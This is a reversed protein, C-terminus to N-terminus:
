RMRDSICSAVDSRMCREGGCDGIGGGVGGGDCVVSGIEGANLGTIGNQPWNAFASSVLFVFANEKLRVM